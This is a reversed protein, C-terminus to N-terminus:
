GWLMISGLIPNGVLVFNLDELAMSYSSLLNYNFFIVHNGHSCTSHRYQWNFSFAIKGETTLWDALIKQKNKSRLFEASVIM